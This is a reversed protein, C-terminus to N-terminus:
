GWGDVKREEIPTRTLTIPSLTNASNALAALATSSCCCIATALSPAELSGADCQAHARLRFVGNGAVDLSSGLNEVDGAFFIRRIGSGSMKRAALLMVSEMRASPIADIEPAMIRRSYVGTSRLFGSLM